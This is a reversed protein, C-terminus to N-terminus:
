KILGAKRLLRDVDTNKRDNIDLDDFCKHITRGDRRYTVVAPEGCDDCKPHHTLAPTRTV